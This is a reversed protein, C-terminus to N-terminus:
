RHAFVWFVKDLNDGKLKIEYNGQEYPFPILEEKRGLDTLSGTLSKSAPIYIEIWKGKFGFTSNNTVFNLKAKFTIPEKSLNLLLLKKTGKTNVTFNQKYIGYAFIKSWNKSSSEKLNAILVALDREESPEEKEPAGHIWVENVLRKGNSVAIGKGHPKYNEDVQGEYITNGNTIRVKDRQIEGSKTTAQLVEGTIREWIITGDLLNLDTDYNGTVKGSGEFVIAGYFGSLQNTTDFQAVMNVYPSYLKIEKETKIPMLDSNLGGDYFTDYKLHYWREAYIVKDPNNVIKASQLDKGLFYAETLYGEKFIGKFFGQNVFYLV